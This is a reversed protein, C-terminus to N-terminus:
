HSFRFRGLRFDSPHSTDPLTVRFSEPQQDFRVLCPHNPGDALHKARIRLRFIKRLLYKNPYPFGCRTILRSGFERSPEEPNRPIQNEVFQPTFPMEYVM